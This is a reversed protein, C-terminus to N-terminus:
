VTLDEILTASHILVPAVPAQAAAENARAADADNEADESGNEGGKAEDPRVYGRYIVPNGSYDLSM